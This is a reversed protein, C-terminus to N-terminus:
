NKCNEIVTILNREQAVLDQVIPHGDTYRTRELALKSQVTQLKANASAQANARIAEKECRQQRLRQKRRSKITRAEPSDDADEVQVQVAQNTCALSTSWIPSILLFFILWRSAQFTQNPM